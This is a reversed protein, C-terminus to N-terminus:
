PFRYQVHDHQTEFDFTPSAKALKEFLGSDDIDLRQGSDTLQRLDPAVARQLQAHCARHTSQCAVGDEAATYETRIEPEIPAVAV